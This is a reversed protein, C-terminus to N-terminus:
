TIGRYWLESELSSFSSITNKQSFPVGAKLRQEEEYIGKVIKASDETFSLKGKKYELLNERIFCNIYQASLRDPIFKLDDRHQYLWAWADISISPEGM